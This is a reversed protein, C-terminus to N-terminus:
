KLYDMLSIRGILSLSQLAAQYATDSQALKAAAEALDADEITQLRAIVGTRDNVTRLRADDVARLDNGVASQASTARNFARGIADLGAQINTEDGAAVATALSTLADLIHQSDGGQFIAGGDFSTAASLGNAIDVRTTTGDGQYPSVTAGSEVFPPTTAQAGSFIYAGQFQTNIDGVLAHRIALLERSAADRQAQTQASGRASLTVTQAATLQNIIDSLASDALNLRYGAADAAGSFTQLRALETHELIAAASGLPDDSPTAMRRGSSIQRQAEALQEAANQIANVGNAYISNYVIRM